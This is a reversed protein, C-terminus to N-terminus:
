RRGSRGWLRATQSDGNSRVGLLGITCSQTWIILPTTAFADMDTNRNTLSAGSSEFTRMRDERTHPGTPWWQCLGIFLSRVLCASM